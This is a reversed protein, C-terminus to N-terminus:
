CGPSSYDEKTEFENYFECETAVLPSDTFGGGVEDPHFVECPHEDYATGAYDELWERNVEVDEVFETQCADCHVISVAAVGAGLLCGLGGTLICAVASATLSGTSLALCDRDVCTHQWFGDNPEEYVQVSVECYGGGLALLGGRSASNQSDADDREIVTRDIGDDTIEVLEAKHPESAIADEDTAVDDSGQLEVDRQSPQIKSDQNSESKKHCFRLLSPTDANEGVHRTLDLSDSRNWHLLMQDPGGDAHEFKVILTSYTGQTTSNEM